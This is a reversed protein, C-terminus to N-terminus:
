FPDKKGGCLKIAHGLARSIRHALEETPAFVWTTAMHGRKEPPPLERSGPEMDFSDIVYRGNSTDAFIAWANDGWRELRVHEPDLDSLRLDFGKATWKKGLLQSDVFALRCDEVILPDITRTVQKGGVEYQIVQKLKGSLWAFTEEHTPEAAAADRATLLVLFLPITLGAFRHV